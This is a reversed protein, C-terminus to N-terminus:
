IRKKKKNKDNSNQQLLDGVLASQKNEKKLRFQKNTYQLSHNSLFLSLTNQNQAFM